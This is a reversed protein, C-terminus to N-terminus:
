VIGSGDFDFTANGTNFASRFAGFDVGDVLGNGDADGYLRFLKPATAPDGVLVYNDGAMGDNNGDFFGASVQSAVVTLTYRGDALSGSNVAVGPAFTLTVSNGAVSASLAVAANDWQRKLQFADAPNAPLTVSQDLNVKITTVRSRQADGNNVDVSSVKA